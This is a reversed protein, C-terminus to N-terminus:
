SVARSTGSLGLVSIASSARPSRRPRVMLFTLKWSRRPSIRPKAPSTPAPRVSTARATKPASGSSAPSIKTWPFLIWIRAGDSATRAPM